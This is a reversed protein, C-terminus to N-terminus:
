PRNKEYNIEGLHGKKEKEAYLLMVLKKKDVKCMAVCIRPHVCSM